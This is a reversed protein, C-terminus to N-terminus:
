DAMTRSPGFSVLVRAPDGQNSRFIGFNETMTGCFIDRIKGSTAKLDKSGQKLFTMNMWKIESFEFFESVQIRTLNM